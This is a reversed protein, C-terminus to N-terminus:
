GGTRRFPVVDHPLRKWEDTARNANDLGAMFAHLPLHLEVLQDGSFGSVCVRGGERFEFNPATEIFLAHM